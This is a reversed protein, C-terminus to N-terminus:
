NVLLSPSSMFFLVLSGFLEAHMAIIEQSYESCKKANGMAARLEHNLFKQFVKTLSVLNITVKADRKGM